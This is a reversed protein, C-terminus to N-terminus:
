ESRRSKPGVFQFGSDRPPGYPKADLYLKIFRGKSKSRLFNGWELPTVEYYNWPTGDRFVVSLTRTKSNYGAAYTRPRQPNTTSTPSDTLEALEGKTREASDEAGHEYDGFFVDSPSDDPDAYEPRIEGSPPAAASGEKKRPGFSGGQRALRGGIQTEEWAQGVGRAGTAPVIEPTGPKRRAM